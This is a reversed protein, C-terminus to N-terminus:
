SYSSDLNIISIKKIGPKRKYKVLNDFLRYKVKAYEDMTKHLDLHDQSLNTFVAVDFDM